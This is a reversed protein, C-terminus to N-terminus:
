KYNQLNFRKALARCVRVSGGRVGDWQGDNHLKSYKLYTHFSVQGYHAIDFFVVTMGLGHDFGRSVRVNSLKKAAAIAQLIYGDKASYGGNVAKKSNQATQVYGKGSDSAAQALCLFKVFNKM